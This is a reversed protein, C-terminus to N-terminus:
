SGEFNYSILLFPRERWAYCQCDIRLPFDIIDGEDKEAKRSYRNTVRAGCLWHYSAHGQWHMIHKLTSNAGCPWNVITHEADIILLRHVQFKKSTWLEEERRHSVLQITSFFLFRKTFKLKCSTTKLRFKTWFKKSNDTFQRCNSNPLQPRGCKWLRRSWKKMKRFANVGADIGQNFFIRVQKLSNLALM